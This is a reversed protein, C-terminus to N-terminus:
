GRLAHIVSHGQSRRIRCNLRLEAWLYALHTYSVAMTGEAAVYYAPLLYPYQKGLVDVAHNYLIHIGDNWIDRFMLVTVALLGCWAAIKLFRAKGRGAGALLMLLAIVGQMGAFLGPSVPIQFASVLWGTSGALYLWLFIWDVLYAAARNKKNGQKEVSYLHFAKQEAAKAKKTTKEVM